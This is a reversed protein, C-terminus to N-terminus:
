EETLFKQETYVFLLYDFKTEDGPNKYMTDLIKRVADKGYGTDIYAIFENLEKLKFIRKEVLRATGMEKTTISNLELDVKYLEGPIYKNDNHIRISTFAKCYLKNNWNTSFKINHMFNLKYIEPQPKVTPERKEDRRFQWM